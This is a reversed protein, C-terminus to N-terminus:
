QAVVEKIIEVAKKLADWPSNLPPLLRVKNKATLVLVGRRLCEAAVEAPSAATEVGLM